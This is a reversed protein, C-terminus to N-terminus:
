LVQGHVGNIIISLLTLVHFESDIVIKKVRHYENMEKNTQKDNKIKYKNDIIV